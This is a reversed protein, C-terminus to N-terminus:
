LASVQKCYDRDGADQWKECFAKTDKASGNRLFENMETGAGAIYSRRLEPSLQFAFAPPTLTTQKPLEHQAAVAAVSQVCAKQIQSAYKPMICGRLKKEIDEPTSSESIQYGNLELACHVQYALPLSSCVDMPTSALELPPGGSFTYGTEGDTGGILNTYESFVGKYCDSVDDTPGGDLTNCLALARPADFAQKMFAHGAGHYCGGRHPIDQLLTCFRYLRERFDAKAGANDAVEGTIESEVGHRYGGECFDAGYTKLIEINDTEDLRSLHGLFHSLTHCEYMTIAERRFAEQILQVSGSVGNDHVIDRLQDRIVEFVPSQHSQFEALKEQPNFAYPKLKRLDAEFGVIVLCALFLAGYLLPLLHRKQGSFFKIRGLISKIDIKARM